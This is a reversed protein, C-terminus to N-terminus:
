AQDAEKIKENIKEVYTDMIKKCQKCVTITGYSKNGWPNVEEIIFEGSQGEYNCIKCKEKLNKIKKNIRDKKNSEKSAMKQM